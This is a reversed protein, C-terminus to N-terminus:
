PCLVVCCAVFRFSVVCVFAGVACKVMCWCSFVYFYVCDCGCVFAVCCLVVNVVRAARGCRVVGCCMDCSLAFRLRLVRLACVCCLLVVVCVCCLVFLMM